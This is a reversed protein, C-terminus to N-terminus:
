PALVASQHTNLAEPELIIEKEPVGLSELYRIFVM